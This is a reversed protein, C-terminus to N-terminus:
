SLSLPAWTLQPVIYFIGGFVYLVIDLFPHSVFFFSSGFIFVLGIVLSSLNHSWYSFFCFYWWRTLSLIAVAVPSFRIVSDVSTEAKKCGWMLDLLIWFFAFASGFLGLFHLSTMESNVFLNLSRMLGVCYFAPLGFFSNVSLSFSYSLFTKSLRQIVYTM